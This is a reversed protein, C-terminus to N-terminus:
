FGYKDLFYELSKNKKRAAEIDYDNLIKEMFLIRSGRKPILKNFDEKTVANTNGAESVGLTRVNADVGALYWGEIERVVIIIDDEEIGIDQMIQEKKSTICVAQNIDAVYIFDAKMAKASRVFNKRREIKKKSYKWLRVNSYEEQFLPKVIKEFFREDDPGELFIFLVGKM